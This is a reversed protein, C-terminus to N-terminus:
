KLDRLLRQFEPSHTLVQHAAARLRDVSEPPLNFSTPLGMLHSRESKDPVADFDVEVLYFQIDACPDAESYAPDTGGASDAAACRRSRIEETWQKFNGKLLEVTEFNYRSIPINTVSKLVSRSSLTKEMHDPQFDPGQEANVLIFVVKRTNEWGLYQLAQWMEGPAILFDIVARLGLNDSIGGDILHIYPRMQADMYSRLHVAKQFRRRSLAPQELARKVWRPAEYDCSGAYNYLTIPSLIVPISSSAAVARSLPLRSVDSCLIDFTEQSFTFYTGLTVDTANVLILPGGRTVIDGFTGGDFINQDYYEAVLDGRAFKASMLRFWNGPELTQSFLEKQINKKLFRSEFDEFIRRGFLGYYAATFSGGSVSSIADVEDLLSRKRGELSFEAKALEELVGYALAAARTGGGSFTLILLLRDSREAQSINKMRYGQGPSVEKLFPNPPYHACGGAILAVLFLGVCLYVVRPNGIKKEMIMLKSLVISRPM